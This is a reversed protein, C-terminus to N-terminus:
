FSQMTVLPSWLTAALLEQCVSNQSYSTTDKLRICNLFNLNEATCSTESVVNVTTVWSWKWKPHRFWLKEM